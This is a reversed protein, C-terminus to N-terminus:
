MCSGPSWDGSQAGVLVWWVEALVSVQNSNYGGGGGGGYHSDHSPQSGGGEKGWSSPWSFM